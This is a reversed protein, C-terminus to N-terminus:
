LSNRIRMFTAFRPKGGRTFGWYKYSIVTGIAPPNRRQNDSFGSGIKFVTGKPTQVILAGLLGSYKGKGPTHGIVKAESDAFAKLKLLNDTRGPHYYASQKHLMLGEGGLKIVKTLVNELTDTSSLKIQEIMKLYPSDNDAVLQQMATVREAFTGQHAPLDFIMYRVNQWGQHASNRSIVSLTESFKGRAIWLEGDLAITPFQETFWKPASLKNGARSLLQGGDWYGRVGDLKESVYYDSINIGTRYMKGHQLRKSTSVPAIPETKAQVIFQCCVFSFMCIFLGLIPQTNM